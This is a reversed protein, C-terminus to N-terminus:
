QSLRKVMSRLSANEKRLREIEREHATVLKRLAVLERQAGDDEPEPATPVPMTVTRDSQAQPADDEEEAGERELARADLSKLLHELGKQVHPPLPKQFEIGFGPPVRRQMAEVSSVLYAVKGSLLLPRNLGPVALEISTHSRMPPNLSCRIFAGGLSLNEVPLGIHLTGAARVRTSMAKPKVRRYRRQNKSM